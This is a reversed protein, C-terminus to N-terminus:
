GGKERTITELERKTTALREGVEPSLRAIEGVVQIIAKVVTKELTSM